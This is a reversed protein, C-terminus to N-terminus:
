SRATFNMFILSIVESLNVKVFHKFYHTGQFMEAAEHFKTLDLLQSPIEWAREKNFISLQNIMPRSDTSLLIKYVYTRYVLMVLSFMM